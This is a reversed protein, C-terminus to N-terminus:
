TAARKVSIRVDFTGAIMKAECRPQAVCFGFSSAANWAEILSPSAKALALGSFARAEIPV